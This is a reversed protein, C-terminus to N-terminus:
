KRSSGGATPTALSAAAGLATAVPLQKHLTSTLDLTGPMESQNMTNNTGGVKRIRIDKARKM